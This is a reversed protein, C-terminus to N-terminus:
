RGGGWVVVACIAAAFLVDALFGVGHLAREREEVGGVEMAWSRLVAQSAVYAGAVAIVLWMRGM